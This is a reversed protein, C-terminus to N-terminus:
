DEKVQHMLINKDIIASYVEPVISPHSVTVTKWSLSKLVDKSNKSIYEIAEVKLVKATHMDALILYRVVNEATINSRLFEECLEKLGKLDYKDAVPLIDAALEEIRSCRGSYLYHIVQEIVDPEIDTINITNTINEALDHKFMAGFVPSRAALIIRHVKFSKEGVSIVVDSMDSTALLNSLDNSLETLKAERNMLIKTNNVPNEVVNLECLIRLNNEPLLGNKADLLIDRKLFEHYGWGGTKKTFIQKKSDRTGYKEKKENLISLQYTATAPGVFLPSVYISVFGEHNKVGKPYLEFCWELLSNPGTKFVPSEIKENTEKDFFTFNEIVWEIHYRGLSVRTLCLIKTAEQQSTISSLDDAM